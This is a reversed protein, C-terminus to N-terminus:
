ILISDELFKIRCMPNFKKETEVWKFKLVKTLVKAFKKKDLHFISKEPLSKLFGYIISAKM